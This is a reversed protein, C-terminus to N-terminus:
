QQCLRHILALAHHVAIPVIYLIGAIVSLLAIVALMMWQGDSANGTAAFLTGAYLICFTVLLIRFNKM